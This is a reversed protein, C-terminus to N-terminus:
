NGIGAIEAKRQSDLSEMDTITVTSALLSSLGCSGFPNAIVLM